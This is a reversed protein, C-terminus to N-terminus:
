AAIERGLLKAVERWIAADRVHEAKREESDPIEKGNMTWVVNGAISQDEYCAKLTAWDLLRSLDAGPYKQCFALVQAADSYESLGDWTIHGEDNRYMCAALLTYTSAKPNNWPEGARKPNTTQSCFRFGRKPHSELWYRIKCRLRFGYPYDEVVHATEPSIHGYLPTM